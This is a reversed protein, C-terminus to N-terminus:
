GAAARWPCERDVGYHGKNKRSNRVSAVSRRRSTQVSTVAFGVASHIARCIVSTLARIQFIVLGKDLM